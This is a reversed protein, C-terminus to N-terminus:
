AVLLIGHVVEDNRDDVHADSENGVCNLLRQADGGAFDTMQIQHVSRRYHANAQIAPHSLEGMYHNM